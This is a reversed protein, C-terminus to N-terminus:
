TEFLTRVPLSFGPLLDGGDLTDDMTLRRTSDPTYVYVTQSDPHIFLIMRTGYHLYESIKTEIEALTDNPSVVEVALDPAFPIYKHPLGGEPIHENLVFGVDPVRVTDKGNEDTYLIYGAEAITHRGIKNSLLFIFLYGAMVAAINGHEGGSPSMEILRGKSLELHKERYEPQRSLEWLEDASYLKEQISM